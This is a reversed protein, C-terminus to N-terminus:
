EHEILSQALAWTAAMQIPMHLVHLNEFLSHAAVAAIMGCSGILISRRLISLQPQGLARFVSLCVTVILSLYAVLGLIGAEAMIHLYYNHAHGRSAFWPALAVDQYALTYNGPGVGLLPHALAMQWGAWLQAMREVVAFNQPTVKVSGPDFFRFAGTISELRSTLAAPLLSTGGLVLLAVTALLAAIGLWRLRGGQVLLMVLLGCAAGLWAGRSFSALLAALLIAVVLWLGLALLVAPLGGALATPLTLGAFMSRKTAHKALPIADIENHVYPSTPDYAQSSILSKRSFLAVSAGIALALALPWAHNLYGAFSNPQGYSGYARVFRGAIEFSPPGDGTWFQFLGVGANILPGLLLSLALLLRQWEQSIFLVLLLWTLAAASWRWLEKIGEIPSYPSYATALLLMGLFVAWCFLTSRQRIPRQPQALLSLVLSLGSAIVAAQTLSLGGPLRLMDQATVSVVLLCASLVPGLLAASSVLVASLLSTSLFAVLLAAFAWWASKRVAVAVQM